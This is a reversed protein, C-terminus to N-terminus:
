GLPCHADHVIGGHGELIISAFSADEPGYGEDLAREPPTVPSWTCEFEFVGTEHDVLIGCSLLMGRSRSAHLAEIALRSTNTDTGVFVVDADYVADRAPQGLPDDLIDAPEKFTSPITDVRLGPRIGDLRAKLADVKSCEIDNWAFSPVRNLNSEDVTDGDILTLQTAGSRVLM